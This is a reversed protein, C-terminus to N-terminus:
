VMKVHTPSTANGLHVSQVTVRYLCYYVSLYVDYPSLIAHSVKKKKKTKEKKKKIKILKNKGQKNKIHKKERSTCVPLWM